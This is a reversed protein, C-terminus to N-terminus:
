YEILSRVFSRAKAKTEGGEGGVFIENSDTPLNRDLCGFRDLKFLFSDFNRREFQDISRIKM